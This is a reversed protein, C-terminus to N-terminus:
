YDARSPLSLGRRAVHAPAVTAAAAAELVLAAPLVLKM